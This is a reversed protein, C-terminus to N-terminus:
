ADWPELAMAPVIRRALDRLDDKTPEVLREYPYTSPLGPSLRANWGWIVAAVREEAEPTPKLRRLTITGCHPCKMSRDARNPHTVWQHGNACEYRHERAESEDM